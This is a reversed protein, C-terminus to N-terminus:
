KKGFGFPCKLHLSGERTKQIHKFLSEPETYLIELEPMNFIEPVWYVKSM